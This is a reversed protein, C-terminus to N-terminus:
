RTPLALNMRRSRASSFLILLSRHAAPLDHEDEPRARLRYLHAREDVLQLSPGLLELRHDADRALVALHEVLHQAHEADRGVVVQVDHLGALREEVDRGVHQKLDPGDQLLLAGVRHEDVAVGSRRERRRQRREVELDRHPVDLRPQAGSVEITGPGLLEIALGDVDDAPPVERGGLGGPLVEEVLGLGVPADEGGAVGADIRQPRGHPLAVGMRLEFPRCPRPEDEDRRVAALVEALGHVAHEAGDAAHHLLAGVGLRDVGDVHVGLNPFGGVLLEVAEIAQSDDIRELDHVEVVEHCAAIEDEGVGAADLLLRGREALGHEDHAVGGLAGLAHGGARQAKHAGLLLRDVPLERPQEVIRNLVRRHGVSGIGVAVPM